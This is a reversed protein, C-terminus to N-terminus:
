TVGDRASIIRGGALIPDMPRAHDTKKLHQQETDDLADSLEQRNRARPVQKDRLMPEAPTRVQEIDRNLGTCHKRDHHDVPSPEPVERQM